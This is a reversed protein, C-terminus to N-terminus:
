LKPPNDDQQSTHCCGSMNTAPFPVLLEVDQDLFLINEELLTKLIPSEFGMGLLAVGRFLSMEWLGLLNLGGCM